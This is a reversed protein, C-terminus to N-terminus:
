LASELHVSGASEPKAELSWLFIIYKSKFFGLHLTLHCKHPWLSPGSKEDGTVFSGTSERQHISASPQQLWSIKLYDVTLRKFRNYGLTNKLAVAARNMTPFVPIHCQGTTRKQRRSKHNELSQRHPFGPCVFAPPVNPPTSPKFPSWPPCNKKSCTSRIRM